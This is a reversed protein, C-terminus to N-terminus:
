FTTKLTEYGKSNKEFELFQIKLILSEMAVPFRKYYSQAAIWDEIVNESM